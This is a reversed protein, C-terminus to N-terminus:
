MEAVDEVVRRLGRGAVAIAHVADSQRELGGFLALGHTSPWEPLESMDAIADGLPDIVTVMPSSLARVARM